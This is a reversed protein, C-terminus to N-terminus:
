KKRNIDEVEKKINKLYNELKKHVHVKFTDGDPNKSSIITFIVDIKKVIDIMDKKSKSSKVLLNTVTIVLASIIIAITSNFSSDDSISSQILALIM